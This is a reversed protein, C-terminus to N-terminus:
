PRHGCKHCEAIAENNPGCAAFLLHKYPAEHNNPCEKYETIEEPSDEWRLEKGILRKITGKPVLTADSIFSWFGDEERHGRRDSIVETGDKNVALYM